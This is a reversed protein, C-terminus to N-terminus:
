RSDWRPTSRDSSITMTPRCSRRPNSAPSFGAGTRARSGGGGVGALFVDVDTSRVADDILNASGQHYFSVGAVTIEIGYIEGCRYAGPSLADLQDCLIAAGGVRQAPSARVRQKRTIGLSRHIFQSYSRPSGGDFAFLKGREASAPRIASFSSILLRLVQHPKQGPGYFYM